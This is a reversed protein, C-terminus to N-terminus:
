CAGLDSLAETEAYQVATKYVYQRCVATHELLRTVYVPETGTGIDLRYEGPEILTDALLTAPVHLAKVAPLALVRIAPSGDDRHLHALIAQPALVQVGLELADRHQLWRVVAVLWRTSGPVRVGVIDGVRFHMRVANQSRMAFGGPSQNVLRWHLAERGPLSWPEGGAPGAAIEAWGVNVDIHDAAALRQFGRKPTISWHRMIHRLWHVQDVASAKMPMRELEAVRGALVRVLLATNIRIDTRADADDPRQAYYQPPLDRDLHAWFGGMGQPLDTISEFQCGSALEKALEAVRALDGIELRYPDILALLLARKYLLSITDPQGEPYDLWRHQVSLLLLQHLDLWLGAPVPAYVSYLLELQRLHTRFIRVILGPLTKQVSFGFRREHRELLVLKYGHALENLLAQARQQAERANGTLPVPQGDFQLELAAFRIDVETQYQDLLELRLDAEVKYRNLASLADLLPVSSDRLGNASLSLFWTKLRKVDTEPKIPMHALPQPVSLRLPM